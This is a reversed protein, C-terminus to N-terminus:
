AEKNCGRCLVVGGPLGFWPGIIDGCRDCPRVTVSKEIWKGERKSWCRTPITVPERM